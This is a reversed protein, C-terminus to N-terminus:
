FLFKVASHIAYVVSFFLIQMCTSRLIFPLFFSFLIPIPKPQFLAYPRKLNMHIQQFLLKTKDNNRERERKERGINRM